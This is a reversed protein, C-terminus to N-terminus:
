FPLDDDWNPQPPMEQTPVAQPTTGQFAGNSIATPTNGMYPQAIPQAPQQVQMGLGNTEELPIPASYDVTYAMANAEQAATKAAQATAINSQYTEKDVYCKQEKDWYPVGGEVLISMYDERKVPYLDDWKTQDNIWANGLEVNETLPTFVDDDVVDIKKKGDAGKKITIVLDKGNSLDFINRVEGRREGAEKRTKYINMITQYIGGNKPNPFLWFKVGDEEHGREICRVIWMEKARNLFSIDDLRKKEAENLTKGKLNRAEVSMDCFPCPHKEKIDSNKMSCTITKWGSPAVEGNVRITHMHVKHFPSGGEPSFPLLRILLQKSEEQKGLNANLYRKPNYERQQSAQQSRMKEEQELRLQDMVADAEINTNFNPLSM